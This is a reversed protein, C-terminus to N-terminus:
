FTVWADDCARPAAAVAPLNDVTVNAGAAAFNVPGPGFTVHADQAATTTAADFV